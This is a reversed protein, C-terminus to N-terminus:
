FSKHNMYSRLIRSSLSGPLLKFMIDRIKSRIRILIPKQRKYKKLADHYKKQLELPINELIHQRVINSYELNKELMKYTIQKDHIRYELTNVPILHLRCNYLLCCRLLFEYDERHGTTESFLGFRSFVSKHILTTNINGYYHDLLIVNRKFSSQENYNPEIFEKIFNGNKDILSYNTYLIYDRCENGIKKIENLMVEVANKKLIDDNSLWKFWEGTMERIGTNLATGTGGNTKTIIKIKDVYKKLIEPSSDTSGDDVAIIEIDQHTQQLASEITKQLYQEANYVPIIISIRM